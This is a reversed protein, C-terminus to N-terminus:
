FSLCSMAALSAFRPAGRCLPRAHAISSSGRADTGPGCCCCGTGWGGVAATGGGGLSAGVWSFPQPCHAPRRTVALFWLHTPNSGAESTARQQLQRNHHSRSLGRTNCKNVTPGRMTENCLMNCTCSPNKPVNPNAPLIDPRHPAAAKDQTPVHPARATEEPHRNVLQNSPPVM